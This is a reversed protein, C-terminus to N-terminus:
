EARRQAAQIRRVDGWTKAGEPWQFVPEVRNPGWQRALIRDRTAEGEPSGDIYGPTEKREGRSNIREIIHAIKPLGFTHHDILHEIANKVNEASYKSLRDAYVVVSGEKTKTAPFAEFLTQIAEAIEM